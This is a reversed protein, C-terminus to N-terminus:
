AMRNSSWAKELHLTENGKPDEGGDMVGEREKLRERKSLRTWCKSEEMQVVIARGKPVSKETKRQEGWGLKNFAYDISPAEWKCLLSMESCSREQGWRFTM